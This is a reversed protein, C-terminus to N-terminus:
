VDNGRSDKSGHETAVRMYAFTAQLCQCRSSVSMSGDKQYCLSDQAIFPPRGSRAVSASFTRQLLGHRAPGHRGDERGTSSVTSTSGPFQSRPPMLEGTVVCWTRPAVATDCISLFVKVPNGSVDATGAGGCARTGPTILVLPSVTTRAAWPFYAQRPGLDIMIKRGNQGSPGSQAIVIVDAAPQRLPKWRGLNSSRPSSLRRMCFYQLSETTASLGDRKRLSVMLVENRSVFATTMMMLHGWTAIRM